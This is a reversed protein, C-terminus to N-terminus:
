FKPRADNFARVSENHQQTAQTLDSLAREYATQIHPTLRGSADDIEVREYAAAAVKRALRLRQKAVALRVETDAETRQVDTLPEAINSSDYTGVKSEEAPTGAGAKERHPM